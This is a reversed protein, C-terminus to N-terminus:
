LALESVSEYFKRNQRGGGISVILQHQKKVKKLVPLLRSFYTKVPGNEDFCLSGGIKVVLRM